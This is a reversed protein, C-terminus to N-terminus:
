ESASVESATIGKPDSGPRRSDGGALDAGALAGPVARSLLCVQGRGRADPRGQLSIEIRRGAAPAPRAAGRSLTGLAVSHARGSQARVLDPLRRADLNCVA